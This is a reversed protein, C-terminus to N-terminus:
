AAACVNAFLWEEAEALTPAMPLTDMYDFQVKGDVDSEYITLMTDKVVYCHIKNGDSVWAAWEFAHSHLKDGYSEVLQLLESENACVTHTARFDEINM